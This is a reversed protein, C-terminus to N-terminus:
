AGHKKYVAGVAEESAFSGAEPEALSRRVEAVQMDSLKCLAGGENVVQLLMRGILDLRDEPLDSARRFAEELLKTM